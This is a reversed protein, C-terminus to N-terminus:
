TIRNKQRYYLILLTLPSTRRMKGESPMMAAPMARVAITKVVRRLRSLLFAM